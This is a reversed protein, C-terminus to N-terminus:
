RYLGQMDTAKFPPSKAAAEYLVCGMSWIDSKSDYPQDKWVEPSAYYPTGTQTYVLGAKAVKSVNLDGLKVQGDKFLFVNASKLDRHLIQLDHLAKLGAIMQGIINWLERESFAGGRKQFEQVKQLLDGGDAYEMVICLCNTAEDMFVEKYDVVNPHHISALIRVENLANEKEKIKLAGMQVKKMAYIENDTLRKVKYVISYAGEGLKEM